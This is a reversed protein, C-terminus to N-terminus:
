KVLRLGISGRPTQNEPNDTCGDMHGMDAPVDCCEHWDDPDPDDPDEDLYAEESFEVEEGCHHCYLAYYPLTQAECEGCKLRIPSYKEALEHNRVLDPSVWCRIRLWLPLQVKGSWKWSIGKLEDYLGPPPRRDWMRSMPWLIYPWATPKNTTKM